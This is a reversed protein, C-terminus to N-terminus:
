MLYLTFFLKFIGFLTILIGDGYLQLILKQVNDFMYNETQITQQPRHQRGDPNDIIKSNTQKITILAVKLLLEAM